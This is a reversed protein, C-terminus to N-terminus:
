KVGSPIGGLFLSFEQVKCPAAALRNMDGVQEKKM